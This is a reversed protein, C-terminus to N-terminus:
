ITFYKLYCSPVQRKNQLFYVLKSLTSPPTASASILKSHIKIGSMMNKMGLFEAENKKKDEM